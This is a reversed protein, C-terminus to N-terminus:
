RPPKPPRSSSPRSTWRRSSRAPSTIPRARATRRSYPRARARGLKRIKAPSGHRTLLAQIYPYALRKGLVRELSPHIQSLLGRLRDATRNVEGTLDNDYGTPM